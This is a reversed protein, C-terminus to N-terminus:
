DPTCILWQGTEKEAELEALRADLDVLERFRTVSDLIQKAALYRLQLNDKQDLLEEMVDAAKGALTTM